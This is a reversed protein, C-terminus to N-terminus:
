ENSIVSRVKLHLIFPKSKFCHYTFVPNLYAVYSGKTASWCETSLIENTHDSNM